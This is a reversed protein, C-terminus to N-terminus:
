LDLRISMSWPGGCDMCILEYTITVPAGDRESIRYNKSHQRQSNCGEYICECMPKIKAM